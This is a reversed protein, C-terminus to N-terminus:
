VQLLGPKQQLINCNEVNRDEPTAFYLGGVNNVLCAVNLAADLYLSFGEQPPNVGALLWAGM